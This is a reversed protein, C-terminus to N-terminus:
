SVAPWSSYMRTEPPTEVPNTKVGVDETGEAVIPVVRTKLDLFGMTEDEQPQLEPDVTDTAGPSLVGAPPVPLPPELVTGVAM